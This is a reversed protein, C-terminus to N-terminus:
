RRNGAQRRRSPTVINGPEVFATYGNGGEAMQQRAWACFEDVYFQYNTFLVFNQFHNASTATYHQCGTRAFLRHAAGHVTALPSPEGPPSTPEM